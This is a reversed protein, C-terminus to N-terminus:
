PRDTRGGCGRDGAVTTLMSVLSDTPFYVYRITAHSEYLVQEFPLEVSELFPLLRQYDRRPLAALLHNQVAVKKAGQM